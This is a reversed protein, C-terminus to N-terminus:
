WFFQGGGSLGLQKAYRPTRCAWYAATTKDNQTSCQHRAAFSARAKPDDIKVSLGTTDGWQIKKVNGTSPDKVYVVFKKSGGRKPKNLEVDKDEAESIMSAQKVLTKVVPAKLQRHRPIALHHSAKPHEFVDHSGTTRTLKWGLKKVHSHLARTDMNAGVMEQVEEESLDETYMPCDLPVMQGDYEAFEGIDTEELIARDIDSLEYSDMNKRVEEFVKFYNESGVRFVSELLPTNSEMHWAIAKQIAQTSDFDKFSLM